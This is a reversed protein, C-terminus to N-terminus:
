NQTNGIIRRRLLTLDAANLAGSGDLDGACWDALATREAGLLSSLAEPDDPDTRGDGNVDGATRDLFTEFGDAFEAHAADSLRSYYHNWSFLIHRRADSSALYDQKLRSLQVPKMDSGFTENNVWVTLRGDLAGQLASQWARIVEPAYDRGCGDQLAIIDEQGLGAKQVIAQWFAAYSAADSLTNNYFPSLLLPKGPFAGRVADKVDGIQAALLAATRGEDTGACAADMNWIENNYYFGAIQASYEDGFQEAIERIVTLNAATNEALWDSYDSTPSGWGYNWWRSDSVTGIYLQMGTEGAAQLARGLACAEGSDPLLATPYLAAADTLRYASSDTEPKETETKEYTLDVASQLIVARFGLSKMAAFEQQWREASWERCLWGQLFSAEFLPPMQLVAEASVTLPLFLLVAFAAAFWRKM